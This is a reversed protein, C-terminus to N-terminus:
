GFISLLNATGAVSASFPSDCSIAMKSLELGAGRELGFPVFSILVAFCFSELLCSLTGPVSKEGTLQYFYRRSLDHISKICIRLLEKANEALTMNTAVREEKEALFAKDRIWFVSLTVSELGQSL